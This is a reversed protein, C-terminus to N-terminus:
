TGVGRFNWVERRRRAEALLRHFVKEEWAKEERGGEAKGLAIGPLPEGRVGELRGHDGVEGRQVAVEAADDVEPDVLAVPQHRFVDVTSRGVAGVQGVEVEQVRRRAAVVLLLLGQHQLALVRTRLADVLLDVLGAHHAGRAAHVQRQRRVVGLAFLRAHQQHLEDLM